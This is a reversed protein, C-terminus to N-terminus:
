TPGIIGDAVLRERGAADIGLLEELVEATHQGVCPAPRDPQTPFDPSRLGTGPYAVAGVTPHELTTFFEAAVIEGLTDIDVSDWVPACTVGAALLRAVVEDRPQDTFASALAKDIEDHRARRAARTALARDLAWM